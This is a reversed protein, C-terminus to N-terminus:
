ISCEMVPRGIPGCPSSGPAARSNSRIRLMGASTSAIITRLTTAASTPTNTITEKVPAGITRTGIASTSDKSFAYDMFLNNDFVRIHEMGWPSKFLTVNGTDAVCVKLYTSGSGSESCTFLETDAWAAAGGSVLVAMLAQMIRKSM